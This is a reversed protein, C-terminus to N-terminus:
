LEGKGDDLFDNETLVGFKSFTASLRKNVFQPFKRAIACFAKNVVFSKAYSERQRRVLAAVLQSRESPSRHSNSLSEFAKPAVAKAFDEDSMSNVAAVGKRFSAECAEQAPPHAFSAQAALVLVVFLGSKMFSM